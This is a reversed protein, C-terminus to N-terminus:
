IMAKHWSELAAMVSDDAMGQVACSQEDPPMQHRSVAPTYVETVLALSDHIECVDAFMLKELEIVHQKMPANLQWPHRQM